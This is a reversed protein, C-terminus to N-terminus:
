INTKNKKVLLNQNAKILEMIFQNHRLGTFVIVGVIMVVLEGLGVTLFNLWFPSEYWIFLELGVIAANSLVPFIAAIYLRKSFMVGIVAIITALTGMPVDIAWQPSFFNAMLCGIILAIAYDKRFFCLLVLIEAFRFQIERYSMWSLALTLAVYMSAVIAIRVVKKLLSEENNM